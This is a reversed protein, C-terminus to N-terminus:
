ALPVSHTDPTVEGLHSHLESSRHLTGLLLSAQNARRRHRGAGLCRAAEEECRVGVGGPARLPLAWEWEERPPGAAGRRM